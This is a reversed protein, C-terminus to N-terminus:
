SDFPAAASIWAAAVADLRRAADSNQCYQPAEVTLLMPSATVATANGSVATSSSRAELKSTLQSVAAVYAAHIRMPSGAPTMVLRSGCRPACTAISRSRAAASALMGAAHHAPYRVM